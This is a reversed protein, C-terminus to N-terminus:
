MTPHILNTGYDALIALDSLLKPFTVEDYFYLWTGVFLSLDFDIHCPTVYLRTVCPSTKLTDMKENQKKHVPALLFFPIQM